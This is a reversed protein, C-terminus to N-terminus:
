LFAKLFKLMYMKVTQTEKFAPSLIKMVCSEPCPHQKDETHNMAPNLAPNMALIMTHNM